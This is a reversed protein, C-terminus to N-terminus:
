DGAEGESGGWAGHRGGGRWGPNRRAFDDLEMPVELLTRSVGASCTGSECEYTYVNWGERRSFGSLTQYGNCQGCRVTLNRISFSRPDREHDTPAAM